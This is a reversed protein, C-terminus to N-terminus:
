YLWRAVGRHWSCTGSRHTSCSFVGDNCRATRPERGSCIDPDVAPSIDGGDWGKSIATAVVVAAVAVAFVAVAGTAADMEQRYWADLVSQCWNYAAQGSIRGAEVDRVLQPQAHALQQGYRRRSTAVLPTLCESYARFTNTPCRASENSIYAATHACGSFATVLALSAVLLHKMALTPM